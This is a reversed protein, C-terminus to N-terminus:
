QSMLILTQIHGYADNSCNTKAFLIKRFYFLKSYRPNKNHGGEGGGKKKTKTKQEKKSYSM